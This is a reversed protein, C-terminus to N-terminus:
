LKKSRYWNIYQPWAFFDQRYWCWFSGNYPSELKTDLKLETQTM